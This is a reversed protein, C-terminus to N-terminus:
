KTKSPLFPVMQKALKAITMTQLHVKGPGTIVTDFLGEGGFLVNKVGKVMQVDIQCTADMIALVGTDCILPEGPALDYEQCYGDVELFVM